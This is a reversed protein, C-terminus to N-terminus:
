PVHLGPVGAPIAKCGCSIFRKGLRITCSAAQYRLLQGPVASAAKGPQNSAQRCAASDSGHSTGDNM